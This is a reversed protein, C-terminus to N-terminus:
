TTCTGAPSPTAPSTAPAPPQPPPQPHPRRPRLPRRTAPARAPRHPARRPAPAHSTRPTRAPLPAPGAAPTPSATGTPTGPHRMAPRAKRTATVPVVPLRARLRCPAGPKRPPQSRAQRSAGEQRPAPGQAAAGGPFAPILPPAAQMDLSGPPRALCHRRHSPSSATARRTVPRQASPPAPTHRHSPATSRAHRRDRPHSAGSIARRIRPAARLPAAPGACSLRTVHDVPPLAVCPPRATHAATRAPARCRGRHGRARARQWPPGGGTGGAVVTLRYRRTLRGTARVIIM